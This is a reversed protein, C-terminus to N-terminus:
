LGGSMLDGRQQPWIDYSGDLCTVVTISAVKDPCPSCTPEPIFVHRTAFRPIAHVKKVLFSPTSM